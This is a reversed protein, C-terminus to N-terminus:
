WGSSVSCTTCVSFMTVMTRVTRYRMTTTILVIRREERRSGANWRRVGRAVKVGRPMRMLVVKRTRRRHRHPGKVGKPDSHPYWITHGIGRGRGLVAFPRSELMGVILRDVSRCVCVVFYYYCAVFRYLRLFFFFFLMLMYYSELRVRHVEDGVCDREESPWTWRDMM